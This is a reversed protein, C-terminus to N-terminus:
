PTLKISPGGLKELLKLFKLRNEKPEKALYEVHGGRDEVLFSKCKTGAEDYIKESTEFPTVTDSKDHIVILCVDDPIKPPVKEASAHDSVLLSGLPSFLWTLWHSAMKKKAIWRYSLFSSESVVIEPWRNLDSLTRLLVAGGLSQGVYVRKGGRYLKESYTLAAAGDKLLGEQDPGGTSKGYGRYDFTFLDYGERTLWVLSAYHATLNAANGHFQVILGKPLGNPQLKETKIFWSWLKEGDASEFIHEEAKYGNAEPPYYMVKDPYYFLSSCSTM